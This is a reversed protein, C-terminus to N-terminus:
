CHRSRARKPVRDHAVPGLEYGGSLARQSKISATSRHAGLSLEVTVIVRGYQGLRVSHNDIAKLCDFPLIQM